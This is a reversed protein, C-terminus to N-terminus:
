SGSRSSGASMSPSGPASRKPRRGPSSVRSESRPAPSASTSSPPTSSKAAREASRLIRKLLSLAMEARRPTRGALEAIFDEVLSARIRGLPLDNLPALKAFVQRTMAATGPRPRVRGAAGREYRVLWAKAYDGFREPPAQYLMGAQRRREADLKFAQADKHATFARSRQRGDGDRFRVEYRRQGSPTRYTRISAM